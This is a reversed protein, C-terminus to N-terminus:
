RLQAIAIARRFSKEAKDRAGAAVLFEGELRYLDAGFLSMAGLTDIAERVATLGQDVRGARLYAVAAVYRFLDYTGADGRKIFANMGEDLMRLGAEFEGEAVMMRGLWVSGFAATYSTGRERSRRLLEEAQQKMKQFDRLFECRMMLIGHIGIAWAFPDIPNKALSSLRQEYRRALGPYGLM